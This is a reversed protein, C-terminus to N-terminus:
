YRAARSVGIGDGGVGDWNGTVPQDNAAGYAFILDPNGPTLGYRIRWVGFSFVGLDTRGDGNYDAPVPRAESFGYAVTSDPRGAANTNKLMWNGRSADYVGITSTGNGDWDGVVPTADLWGYDFIAFAQGASAENRLYWKGEAYVGIGASGDGDWDGCVPTWWPMGYSFVASPPGSSVALRIYWVGREVAAIDDRGDGDFDCSLATSHPGGYHLYYPAPGASVEDRLQWEWLNPGTGMLQAVRDRVGPLAAYGYQGPCTTSGVDRHAFVTPLTVRTGAPYKSTGGGGSTLTTQGYPNVGYLSLKWAITTAVAELMASNPQAVDFNGLMSVGFTSTNFGGAHAGIVTSALGGYRGEWARGYADVIVNYGIDGWGRSESHYRYISRLIGPVDEASYINSDATHHITAASITDAYQPDWTMLDPDAGWQARSYIPPMSAAAEAVDTIEPQGPVADAASEGPDILVLKVDAPQAGSRTMVEVEIGVSDGTWLPESGGRTTGEGQATADGASSVGIETWESWAGDLRVTRVKVVVDVVAPDLMWTVGVASFPQSEPQTLTLVPFTETGVVPETLGTQVEADGAPATVAGMDVAQTDGSVPVPEPSAQAFVPLVLVVPLAIASSVLSGLLRHRRQWWSGVPSAEACRAEAREARAARAASSRNM